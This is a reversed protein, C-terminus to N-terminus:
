SSLLRALVDARFGYRDKEQLARVVATIQDQELFGSLKCALLFAPINVVQVGCQVAEHRARNDNMLLVSGTHRLALATAEREGAGLDLFGARKALEDVFRAEPIEVQLWPIGALRQLLSTQSVERYVAPPVLLSTTRYFDRVLPLQDIKLFASLFDTDLVVPPGSL